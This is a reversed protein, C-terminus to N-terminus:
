LPPDFGAAFDDARGGQRAQHGDGGRLEVRFVQLVQEAEQDGFLAGHVDVEIVVDEGGRQDGLTALDLVLPRGLSSSFRRPSRRDNSDAAIKTRSRVHGILRNVSNVMKTSAIKTPKSTMEFTGVVRCVGSIDCVLAIWPMTM